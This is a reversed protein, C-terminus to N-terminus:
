SDPEILTDTPHEKHYQVMQTQIDQTQTNIYRVIETKLDDLDSPDSYHQLLSLLKSDDEFVMDVSKNKEHNSVKLSM